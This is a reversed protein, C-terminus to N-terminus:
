LPDLRLRWPSRPPTKLHEESNISQNTTEFMKNEMIYPIIRGLQSMNKLITLVVLWISTKTQNQEWTRKWPSESSKRVYAYADQTKLNIHMAGPATSHNKWWEISVFGCPNLPMHEDHQLSPQHPDRVPNWRSCEWTKGMIASVCQPKM